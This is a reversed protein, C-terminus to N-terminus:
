TVFALCGARLEAVPVPVALEGAVERLSPGDSAAEDPNGSFMFGDCAHVQPSEILHVGTYARWM